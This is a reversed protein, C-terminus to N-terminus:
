GSGKIMADLIPKTSLWTNAIHDLISRSKVVRCTTYPYIAGIAIQLNSRKNALGDYAARLWQPQQKVPNGKTDPFATRLDFGIQADLIPKARQSKYRRQVVEVWPKAGGSKRLAKELNKNVRSMYDVFDDYGLDVINRRYTSPMSHPMILAVFIRQRGIVFTLHPYKTFPDNNDSGKLRLFDWVGEGARGTIAGRGTGKPKMGIGLVLDKRARLEEMALKLVRKAEHYTYPEKDDFPIGSFVTLTGEKLYGDESLKSEAVELYQSMRRAWDSGSSHDVFWQYIDSWKRYIVGNPLKQKPPSVDIALVTIDEFGCREATRHHRRLQDNNLSAAVKSEILLCWSENDHIWADPLGRREAEDESVDLEGPIRQEIIELASSRNAPTGTVWRIFQRLLKRDESLCCALAHTLRNEPQSYQDFINRL